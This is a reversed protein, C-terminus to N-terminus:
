SFVFTILGSFIEFVNLPNSQKFEELLREVLCVVMISSGRRQSCIFLNSRRNMLKLKEALLLLSSPLICDLVM